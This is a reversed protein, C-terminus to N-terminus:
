DHAAHLEQVRQPVGRVQLQLTDLLEGSQNRLEITHRGASLPWITQEGKGLFVGNVYWRWLASDSASSARLALGQNSLPMDPDLALVAGSVPSVIKPVRRARVHAHEVRALETGPLFYEVGAAEMQGQFEVRLAKVGTPPAPLFCRTGAHLFPMIDQCIPAVGTVGWVGRLMAFQC